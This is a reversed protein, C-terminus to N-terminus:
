AIDSAWNRTSSRRYSTGSLHERLPRSYCRIGAIQGCFMSGIIFLCNFVLAATAVPQARTGKFSGGLAFPTVVVMMFHLFLKSGHKLSYIFPNSSPKHRWRSLVGYAPALGIVFCVILSTISLAFGSGHVFKSLATSKPIVNLWLLPSLTLVALSFSYQVVNILYWLVLDTCRTSVTSQM